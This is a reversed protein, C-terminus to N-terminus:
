LSLIHSVTAQVIAEPMSKHLRDTMKRWAGKKKAVIGSIHHFVRIHQAVEAVDEEKMGSLQSLQRDYGPSDVESIIGM